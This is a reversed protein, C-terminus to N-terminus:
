ADVVGRFSISHVVHLAAGHEGGWATFGAHYNRTEIKAEM